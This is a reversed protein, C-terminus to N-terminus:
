SMYVMYSKESSMLYRPSNSSSLEVASLRTRLNQLTEHPLSARRTLYMSAALTILYQCPQGSSQYKFM